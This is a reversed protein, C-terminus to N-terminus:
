SSVGCIGLTIGHTPVQHEIGLTTLALAAIADGVHAPAAKLEMLAEMAGRLEPIRCSGEDRSFEVVGGDIIFDEVAHRYTQRRMARVVGYAFAEYETDFPLWEDDDLEILAYRFTVGDGTLRDLIDDSAIPVPRPTAAPEPLDTWAFTPLRPFSPPQALAEALPIKPKDAM